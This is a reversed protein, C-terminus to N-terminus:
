LAHTCRNPPFSTSFAPPLVCMMTELRCPAHKSLYSPLQPGALHSLVHFFMSACTHHDPNSAQFATLYSLFSSLGSAIRQGGICVAAAVVEVVKEVVEVVQRVVVGGDDDDDDNKLPSVSCPFM